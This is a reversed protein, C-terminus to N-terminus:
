KEIISDVYNEIKSTDIMKSYTVILFLNSKKLRPSLEIIFRYFNNVDNIKTFDVNVGKYGYKVLKDVLEKSINKRQEYNLLINSNEVESTIKPIINLGNKSTWDSYSNYTATNFSTRDILSPNSDIYFGIPSVINFKNNDTKIDVYVGSINSYNSYYVVDINTSAVDDRIKKVNDINKTKIYGINGLSSRVKSYKEENSLIVVKDSIILKELRYGNFLGKKEYLECRKKINGETKSKLLSDIIIRNSIKSYYVEVNYVSALDSFPLYIKGNKEKLFGNITVKEDNIEAQRDDLKMYVINKECTSILEKDLEDYLINKDFLDRIDDFSFYIIDDKIFPPDVLKVIENDYLVTVDKYRNILSYIMDQLILLLIFLFILACIVVKKKNLKREEINKM